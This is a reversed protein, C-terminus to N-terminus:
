LKNSYLANDSSNFNVMTRMALTIAEGTLMIEALRYHQCKRGRVNGGVLYATSLLRQRLEWDGLYTAAGIAFATGSPSIGYVIPGADIDFTFKPNRNLYEKVAAYKGFAIILNDKLKQLQEEGFRKDLLALGTANLGSYAGSTRGTTLNRFIASSLLGTKPEIYRTKLNYLWATITAHYTEGYISDYDKLALGAFMMDPLYIVGNPFSPLNLDRSALMRRNLTDCLKKHLTNYRNDGGALRYNGIMWALISLYTMHSNEGDLTDIADEKWCMTDYFRIVTTNTQEILRGVKKLYNDKLEPYLRILNCLACATMSCAYIAWQGQCQRGIVEPMKAILEEPNSVIIEKCLWEARRRLESKENKSAFPYESQRKQSDRNSWSVIKKQNIVLLARIATPFYKWHKLCLRIGESPIDSKYRHLFKYKRYKRM